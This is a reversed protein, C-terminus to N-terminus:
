DAVSMEEDELRREEAHAVLLFRDVAIGLLFLLAGHGLEPGAVFDRPELAQAFDGGPFELIEDAVVDAQLRNRQGMEVVAVLEEAEEHALVRRLALVEDDAM